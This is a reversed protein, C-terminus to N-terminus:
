LDVRRRRARTRGPAMRGKRAGDLVREGHAYINMSAGRLFGVLTIGFRRALDVAFSTPAGVAAVVPIGGVVAKQLIEYSVRGSVLLVLDDFPLREEVLGWGLIKDLANHRGVDERLVVMEGRATFLASAHVGGTRGFTAQAVRMRDPLSALVERSIALRSRSPRGHVALSAISTKGCAGCSSNGPFLREVKPAPRGPDLEVEVVNGAEGGHLGRPRRIRRVDSLSGVIGESLMFGRVLDDDHGPTRMLVTSVLGGFRIELPAEVAVRDGRGVAAGAAAGYALVRVGSVAGTPVKRM